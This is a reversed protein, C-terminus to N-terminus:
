VCLGLHFPFMMFYQFSISPSLNGSTVTSISPFFPLPLFFFMFFFIPTQYFLKSSTTSSLLLFAYHIYPLFPDHKLPVSIPSDLLVSSSPDLNRVSSFTDVASFFPLLLQSAVFMTPNILQSIVEYM